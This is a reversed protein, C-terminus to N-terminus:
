VEVSLTAMKMADELTEAGGIFRGAHVFTNVGFKEFGVAKALEEGRLGAWSEKLPVRGEFSGPKLPVQQVMWGNNPSPYVVMKIHWPVDCQTIDPAFNEFVAVGDTTAEFTADIMEQDVVEKLYNEILSNLIVEAMDMAAAFAQDVFKGNAPNLASIAASFTFHDPRAGHGCDLSDVSEMVRADVLSWVKDAQDDTIDQLWGLIYQLGFRKWVLGASAYPVGNERQGAGGRQHHDFFKEGDSKGGVDILVDCEALVAEDRTRIIEMPSHYGMAAVLTACAIVDDAHFPGDHTGIRMIIDKLGPSM